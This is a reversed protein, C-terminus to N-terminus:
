TLAAAGGLQSPGRGFYVPAALLHRHGYPWFTHPIGRRRMYASAVMPAIPTIPPRPTCSFKRRFNTTHIRTVGSLRIHAQKRAGM